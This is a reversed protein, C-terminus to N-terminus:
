PGCSSGAFIAGSAVGYAGAFMLWFASGIAIEKRTNKEVDTESPPKFVTGGHTEKHIKQAADVIIVENQAKDPEIMALHEIGFLNTVMLRMSEVFSPILIMGLTICAAVAAGKAITGYNKIGGCSNGQLAALLGFQLLFSVVVCIGVLWAIFTMQTMNVTRTIAFIIMPIMAHLAAAAAMEGYLLAMDM